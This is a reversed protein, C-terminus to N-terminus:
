HLSPQSRAATGLDSWSLLVQELVQRLGQDLNAAEVRAAALHAQLAATKAATLGCLASSSLLALIAALRLETPMAAPNLDVAKM